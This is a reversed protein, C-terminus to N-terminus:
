SDPSLQDLWGNLNIYLRTLVRNSKFFFYYFLMPRFMKKKDFLIPINNQILKNLEYVLYQAPDYVSNISYSQYL